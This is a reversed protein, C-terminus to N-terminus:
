QVAESSPTWALKDGVQGGAGGIPGDCLRDFRYLFDAPKHGHDVIWREDSALFNLWAQEFEVDAMEAHKRVVDALLVFDKQGWTPKRGRHAKLWSEVAFRQFRHVREADAAAPRSRKQARASGERATKRKLIGKTEDIPLSAQSQESKTGQRSVESCEQNSMESCEPAQGGVKSCDSVVRFVFKKPNLVWILFGRQRRELRIYGGKRLLRAWRRLTGQPWGSRESLEEWTLVKGHLVEGSPSTQRGVLWGFLWVSVGMKEAHKPDWLGNTIGTPYKEHKVSVKGGLSWSRASTEGGHRGVSDNAWGAM